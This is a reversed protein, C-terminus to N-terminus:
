DLLKRFTLNIRVGVKKATKPICHEYYEQFGAHMLLLTNDTLHISFGNRKNKIERIKFRRTEGFSLSCVRPRLGLEKENDSHWGMSDAGTRYQNLLVGNFNEQLRDEIHKKLRQVTPSYAEAKWIGGSYKYDREGQWAILRPQDFTKGFLKIKRNQWNVEQMLADFVEKSDPVVNEHIEWFQNNM